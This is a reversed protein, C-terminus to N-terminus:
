SVTVTTTATTGTTNDQAAVPKSGTTTILATGPIAIEDNLAQYSTNSWPGSVTVGAYQGNVYLVITHGAQFGSGSTYTEAGRAAAAMSVSAAM